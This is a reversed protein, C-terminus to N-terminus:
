GERKGAITIRSPLIDIYKKLGAARRHMDGMASGVNDKEQSARQILRQHLENLETLEKRLVEKEAPPLPSSDSLPNKGGLGKQWNEFAVLYKGTEAVFAEADAADAIALAAKAMAQLDTIKGQDAM